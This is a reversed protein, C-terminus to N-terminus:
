NSEGDKDNSESVSSGSDTDESTKEDEGDDSPEGVEVEEDLIGEESLVLEEEVAPPIVSAISIDSASVIDIDDDSITVDAVSVSSNIELHDVNVEISEPVNTPYCSIEIQNMSQSLIGGETVGVPKGVLTLPVLITMKESRRVRMFDIHIIEDTVPHYQVDKIMVYQSKSEIKIEYIRQDSKIAQYLLRKDIAISIPQEGKFYLISPIKGERRIIKSAKKGVAERNEIELKYYSTSM